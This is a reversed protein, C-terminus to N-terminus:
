ATFITAHGRLQTSDTLHTIPMYERSGSKDDKFLFYGFNTDIQLWILMTNANMNTFYVPGGSAGWWSTKQSFPFGKLLMYSGQHSGGSNIDMIWWLNVVNGTKTYFGAQTGYGAATSSGTSGEITPTWTGEEYDLGTTGSLTVTGASASGGGSIIGSRAGVQNIIGSM